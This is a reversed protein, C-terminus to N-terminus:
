NNKTSFKCGLGRFFTVGGDKAVVGELFQPGTLRGEKKSFKSPPEVGVGASLHM